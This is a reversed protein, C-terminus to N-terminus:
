AMQTKWMWHHFRDHVHVYRHNKKSLPVTQGRRLKVSPIRSGNVGTGSFATATGQLRRPASAKRGVPQFCTHALVMSFHLLNEQDKAQQWVGWLKSPAALTAFVDVSKPHNPTQKKSMELARECSASADFVNRTGMPPDLDATGLSKRAASRMSPSSRAVQLGFQNVTCTPHLCRGHTLMMLTTSNHGIKIDIKSRNRTSGLRGRRPTGSWPVTGRHQVPVQFHLAQGHQRGCLFHLDPGHGFARCINPRVHCMWSRKNCTGHISILIM